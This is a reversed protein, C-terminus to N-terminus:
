AGNRPQHGGQHGQRIETAAGPAAQPANPLSRPNAGGPAGNGGNRGRSEGPHSEAEAATPEGRTRVGPRILSTCDTLFQKEAVISGEETIYGLTWVEFHHPAQAIDSTVEGQNVLRAVSALVNKDDPGFFPQMFYDILRDRIAYIKM